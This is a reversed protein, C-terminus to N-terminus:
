LVSNTNKAVNVNLVVHSGSQVYGKKSSIYEDAHEIFVCQM